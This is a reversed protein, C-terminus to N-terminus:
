IKGIKGWLRSWLSWTPHQEKTMRVKELLIKRGDM